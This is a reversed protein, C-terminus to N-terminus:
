QEFIETTWGDPKTVSIFWTIEQHVSFKASSTTTLSFDPLGAQVKLSFEKPNRLTAFFDERKKIDTPSTSMLRLLNETSIPDTVDRFIARRKEAYETLVDPSAAELLVQKLGDALHAADLLGTTLGLGGVPNNLHAADGALLVNRVRYHTACRQHITYPALAEYEIKSTDGPLLRCLRDKVVAITAEDLAAANQTHEKQVGTAFRWKTGKGRKVVIGWDIPDVFFTAPKWGFDSLAYQFNVAVFQLSDWTYGELKVGLSKRVTSRAGDTGVLYRCTGEIECSNAQDQVWYSVSDDRQELRQLHHSSLVDANDTKLLADLALKCFEPQSLCVAFNPDDPPATLPFLMNAKGDRWDCGETNNDGAEKVAELIGAKSFEELVAPFYAVARPSRDLNSGTEFVTVKIGAQAILLATFLGVPGAGIVAVPTTWKTVM